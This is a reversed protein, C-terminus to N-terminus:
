SSAVYRVGLQSAKGLTWKDLYSSAARCVRVHMQDGRGADIEEDNCLTHESAASRQSVGRERRESAAAKQSVGRERRESAVPKQFAERASRESAAARQSAGKEGSERAVPAQEARRESAAPKKLAARFAFRSFAHRHESCGNCTVQLSASSNQAVAGM